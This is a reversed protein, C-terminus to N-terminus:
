PSLGITVLNALILIYIYDSFNVFPLLVFWTKKPPPVLSWQIITNCIHTRTLTKMLCDPFFLVKKYFVIGLAEVNSIYYIDFSIYHTSKWHYSVIINMQLFIHKSYLRSQPNFPIITCINVTLKLFTWTHFIQGWHCYKIYMGYISLWHSTDDYIPQNNSNALGQELLNYGKSM